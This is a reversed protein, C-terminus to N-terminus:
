RKKKDKAAGSVGSDTSKTGSADLRAAVKRALEVDEASLQQVTVAEGPKDGASDRVWAAAATDGDQAKIIQAIAIADYQDLATDRAKAASQAAEALASDTSGTYEMSLLTDLVDRLARKRRRVEAGAAQGKRTFATKEEPEMADIRRLNALAKDTPRAM